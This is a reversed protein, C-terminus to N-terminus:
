GWPAENYDTGNFNTYSADYDLSMDAMQEKQMRRFVKMPFWAAMVIDTKEKNRSSVPKGDFYLLQQRYANVKASSESNGVPLHIKQAEFLGAMSGVGYMPDHKNKGTVHGSMTIGGRLVFEKIKDDQRIATQFGNEEIVWHQLDYKHLWDSMIQLAHKV